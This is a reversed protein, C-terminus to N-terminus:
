INKNPQSFRMLIYALSSVSLKRLVVMLAYRVVDDCANCNRHAGLIGAPPLPRCQLLVEPILNRLPVPLSRVSFNCSLLFAVVTTTGHDLSNICSYLIPNIASVSTNTIVEGLRKGAMTAKFTVCLPYALGVTVHLYQWSVFVALCVKNSHEFHSVSLLAVFLPIPVVKSDPFM